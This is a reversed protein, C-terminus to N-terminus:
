NQETKNKSKEEKILKELYNYTFDIARLLDSVENERASLERQLKEFNEEEFSDMMEWSDDETFSNSQCFAHIEDYRKRFEPHKEWINDNNSM